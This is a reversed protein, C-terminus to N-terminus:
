PILLFLGVHSIKAYEPEALVVQEFVNISLNLEGIIDVKRQGNM